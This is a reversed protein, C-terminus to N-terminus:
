NELDAIKNLSAEKQYCFNYLLEVQISSAMSKVRKRSKAELSNEM